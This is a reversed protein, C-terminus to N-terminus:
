NATSPPSHDVDRGLKRAGFGAKINQLFFFIRQDRSPSSGWSALGM